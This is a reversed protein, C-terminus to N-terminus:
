LVNRDGRRLIHVTTCRQRRAKNYVGLYKRRQTRAQTHVGRDGGRIEYVGTKVGSYICYVGTEAGSYIYVETKAGAQTFVYYKAWERGM